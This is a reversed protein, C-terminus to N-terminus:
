FILIVVFRLLFVLTSVFFLINIKYMRYLINFINKKNKMKIDLSIGDNFIQLCFYQYFLVIVGIIIGIKADGKSVLFCSSICTILFFKPIFHIVPIVREMWKLYKNNVLSVLSLYSVVALSYLDTANYLRDTLKLVKRKLYYGSIYGHYLVININDYGNTIDKAIDFSSVKCDVGKYKFYLALIVVYGVIVLGLGVGLLFIDM